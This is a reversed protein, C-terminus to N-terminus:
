VAIGLALAPEGFRRFHAALERRAEGRVGAALGDIEHAFGGHRPRNPDLVADLTVMAVNAHQSQM